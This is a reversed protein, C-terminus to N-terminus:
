GKPLLLVSPLVKDKQKETDAPQQVKERLGAIKCPSMVECFCHRFHEGGYNSGGVTGHGTQISKEEHIM